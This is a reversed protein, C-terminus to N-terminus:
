QLQQATLSSFQRLYNEWFISQKRFRKPSYCQLVETFVSKSENQANCNKGNNMINYWSPQVPSTKVGFWAEYIEAVIQEQTANIKSPIEAETTRLLFHITPQCNQQLRNM